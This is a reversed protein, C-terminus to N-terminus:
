SSSAPDNLVYVPTNKTGQDSIGLGICVGEVPCSVEGIASYEDHGIDNPANAPVSFTSVMWSQGFDSTGIAVASGSATTGNVEQPVSEQGVLECQLASACSVASLLPQVVSSPLPSIAWTMGADDSVIVRSVLTSSSGGNNAPTLGLAMCHNADGCSISSLFTAFGVNSPLQGSSWTVGGTTTTKVFGSVGSASLSASYGVIVCSSTSTCSMGSIVANQAFAYANWTAGADNTTVFSEDANVLSNDSAIASLTNTPAAVGLCSTPSDCALKVLQGPISIPTELWEHGGDDTSLLITQGALTAGASCQLDSLCSLPSTFDIGNPLPLVSWTAGLDGTFYLTDYDASGTASTAGNGTVFCATSSPCSITGPAPGATDLEWGTDFLYGELQWSTTHTPLAGGTISRAPQWATTIPGTLHHSGAVVYGVSAVLLIVVAAATIRFRSSALGARRQQDVGHKSHSHDGPAVETRIIEELLDDFVPDRLMEEVDFKSTPDPLESAHDNV